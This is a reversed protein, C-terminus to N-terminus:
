RTLISIYKSIFDKQSFMKEAFLRSNSSFKSYDSPTLRIAKELKEAIDQPELPNFLFGNENDKVYYSNDCVDSCVIPLGCAMAECIVNPTGEFLSPLCFINSDQYRPLINKEKDHLHIIDCLGLEEILAECEDIYNSSSPTKGFWDVTFSSNKDKLIKIAQILRKTNKTEYITAVILIRPCLNIGSNKGPRFHKLDVFNTITEIRDIYKPYHKEIFTAQSNSNPIIADAHKYLNFRIKDIAKLSQNTTRESVLLKFNHLIIKAICAILSPMGQFAIVWDPCERKFYSIIAPIRSCKNSSNPILEYAVNNANLYEAYFYSKNYFCVKVKHGANQLMVALGVLQRQAGGAGLNDTFLLLKM